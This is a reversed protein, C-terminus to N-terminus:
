DQLEMIIIENFETRSLGLEMVCMASVNSGLINKLMQANCNWLSNTSSRFISSLNCLHKVQLTTTFTFGLLRGIHGKHPASSCFGSAPGGAVCGLGTPTGPGIVSCPFCIISSSSFFLTRRLRRLTVIEHYTAFYKKPIKIREKGIAVGLNQFDQDIFM